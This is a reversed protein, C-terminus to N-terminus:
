EFIFVMVIQCCCFLKANMRKSNSELASRSCSNVTEKLHGTHPFVIVSLGNYVKTVHM